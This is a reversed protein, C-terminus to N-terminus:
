NKNRKSQKNGNGEIRKRKGQNLEQSSPYEDDKEVGTVLDKPSQISSPYQYQYKKLESVMFCNSVFEANEHKTNSGPPWVGTYTFLVCNLDKFIGLYNEPAWTLAKNRKRKPLTHKWAEYTQELDLMPSGVLKQHISDTATKSRDVVTVYKSRTLFYLITNSDAAMRTKMENFYPPIWKDLDENGHEELAKEYAATWKKLLIAIEYKKMLKGLAVNVEQVQNDFYVYVTRRSMAHTQDYLININSAGVLPIDLDEEKVNKGKVPLSGKERGTVWSLLLSLPLTNKRVDPAVVLLKRNPTFFQSAGFKEECLDNLTGVDEKKFINEMFNVYTSKGTNRRGLFWMWFQWDDIGLRQLMRGTGIDIFRKVEESHEQADFIQNKYPTPLCYWDDTKSITLEYIENHFETNEIYNAVALKNEQLPLSNIHPWCFLQNLQTSFIGNSFSILSRDRKVTYFLKDENFYLMSTLHTRKGPKQLIQKIWENSSNHMPLNIFEDITGYYKYDYTHFGDSTKVPQVISGSKKVFGYKHALRCYFTCLLNMEDPEKDKNILFELDRAVVSSAFEHDKFIFNGYGLNPNQSLNAETYLDRQDILTHYAKLYTNELKKIRNQLDERQFEKCREIARQFFIAHIMYQDYLLKFNIGMDNQELNFLALAYYTMWLFPHSKHANKISIKKEYKELIKEIEQITLTPISELDPDFTKRDLFSKCTLDQDIQNLPILTKADKAILTLTEEGWRASKVDSQQEEQNQFPLVKETENLLVQDVFSNIQSTEDLVNFDISDLSLIDTCTSIYNDVNFNYTKEIWLFTTDEEEKILNGKTFNGQAGPHLYSGFIEEACTIRQALPVIM